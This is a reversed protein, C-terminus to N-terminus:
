RAAYIHGCHYYSEAPKWSDFQVGCVCRMMSSFIESLLKEARARIARIEARSERDHRYEEFASDPVKAVTSELGGRLWRAGRRVNGDDRLSAPGSSPRSLLRVVGQQLIADERPTWDRRIM